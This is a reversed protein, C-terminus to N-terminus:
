INKTFLMTQRSFYSKENQTKIIEECCKIITIAAELKRVNERIDHLGPDHKKHSEKVM